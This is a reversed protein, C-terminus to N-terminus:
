PRVVNFPNRNKRHWALISQLKNEDGVAYHRRGNMPSRDRYSSRVIAATTLKWFERRYFYSPNHSWQDMFGTKNGTLEERQAGAESHLHVALYYGEEDEETLILYYHDGVTPSSRGPEIWASSFCDSGAALKESDLLVVVGPRIEGTLIRVM